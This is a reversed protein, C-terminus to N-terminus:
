AAAVDGDDLSRLLNLAANEDQDRHHGAVCRYTLERVPDWEPDPEGGCSACTRTLDRAPSRLVQPHGDELAERLFGPSALRLQARRNMWGGETDDEPDPRELIQTWNTDDVVLTEYRWRLRAAFRRFHDKRWRAYGARSAGEWDFLHKDQKRWAELASYAEEDGDFRNSRWMIALSALRATSRWQSLHAAKEPLWEPVSRGELWGVLEDRARDFNQDRTSRLEEAKRWRGLQEPPIRLEEVAGDEGVAYAVRLSGDEMRRFGMDVGAAGVAESTDQPEWGAARSLVFQVNWKEDTGHRKRTLRVWKVRADAPIPRHLVFRVTAWIPTRNGTGESGVRIHARWYPRKSRRGGPKAEPPLPEKELRLQAHGEVLDEWSAGGQIQVAVQGNWDARRVFRPPAGSRIGSLSQEVVLYSGWHLGSEARARKVADRAEADAQDLDTRAPSDKRFMARRLSRHEKQQARLNGKIERARESLEEGPDRKRRKTNRERIADRVEGLEEGLADIRTDLDRIRPDYERVIAESRARRELEIAVLDNRYRWGADIQGYIRDASEGQPPKAGYSYVRTPQSKNGYM